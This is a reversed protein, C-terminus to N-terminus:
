SCVRNNNVAVMKMASGDMISGPGMGLVLLDDGIAVDDWALRLMNIVCSSSVNGVTRLNKFALSENATGEIELSKALNSVIKAGGPHLVCLSLEKALKKFAEYALEKCFRPAHAQTVTPTENSIVIEYGDENYKYCLVHSTEPVRRQKSMVIELRKYLGIERNVTNGGRVVMATCADSFISTMIFWSMDYKNTRFGFSCLELSVILVNKNPEALAYKNALNITYGGGACGVTNTPVQHCDEPFDMANMLNISFAPFPFPCHSTFVIAGVDKVAIGANSLAENVTPITIELGFKKYYESQM